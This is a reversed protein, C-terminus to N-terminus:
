GDDSCLSEESVKVRKARRMRWINFGIVLVLIGIRYIPKVPLYLAILIIMIGTLTHTVWNRWDKLYDWVLGLIKM